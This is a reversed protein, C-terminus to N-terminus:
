GFSHRRKAKWAKNGWLWVYQFGSAVTVALTAFFLPQDFRGSWESIIQTLVLWLVLLIQLVTNIKSLMAPKATFKEVWFYYTVGGAVIVLDRLVIAAFLWGPLLGLWTLVCTACVLLLKDALPDLIGGIRTRWGNRRALYGDVADSLGGIIFLVLAWGFWEQVLCWIVPIVLGIRFLTIINPLHRPNVAVEAGCSGVRQGRAVGM